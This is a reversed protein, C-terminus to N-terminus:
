PVWFKIVTHVKNSKIRFWKLATWKRFGMEGLETMVTDTDECKPGHEGFSM